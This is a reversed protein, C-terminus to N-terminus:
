NYVIHIDKNFISYNLSSKMYGLIMEGSPGKCTPCTESFGMVNDKRQLIPLVLANTMEITGTAIIPSIGKTEEVIRLDM